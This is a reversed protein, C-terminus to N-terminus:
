FVFNIGSSFIHLSDNVRKQEDYQFKFVANDAIDYRFGLSVTELNLEYKGGGAMMSFVQNAGMIAGAVQMPMGEVSMPSYNSSSKTKSYTVFPTWEDFNYGSGIYWSNIDPMFSDTDASIYEGSVYANEFEYKAGLNLYSIRQNQYKYKEITNSIIPINLANFQGLVGETRQNNLDLTTSFYSTRLTLDNYLLKVALGYINEAHITADGVNNNTSMYKSNTQGYLFTSSLSGNELDARHFLEIGQYKSISVLGYMDPLRLMEYSYGVNLIDSNMFTPLRMLGVKIDFADTVQYKANAWEADLNKGNSNNKSAIAQVTFSLKHTVKADLQLGLASYNAFSAKGKSGKETFFSNRFTVDKNDQFAVGVTGYGNVSLFDWDEAFLATKFLSFVLLIKLINNKM